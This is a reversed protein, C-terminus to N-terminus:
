SYIELASSRQCIDFISVSYLCVKSETSSSARQTSFYLSV